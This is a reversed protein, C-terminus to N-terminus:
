IAEYITQLRVVLPARAIYLYKSVMTGNTVVFALEALALITDITGSIM